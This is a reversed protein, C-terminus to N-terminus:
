LTGFHIIYWCQSNDLYAVQGLGRRIDAPFIIISFAYSGPDQMYLKFFRHALFFQNFLLSEGKLLLKTPTRGKRNAYEISSWTTPDDLASGQVPSAFVEVLRIKSEKITIPTSPVHHLEAKVARELAWVPTSMWLCLVNILLIPRFYFNM